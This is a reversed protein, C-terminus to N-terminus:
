KQSILQFYSFWVLTDGIDDFEVPMEIEEGKGKSYQKGYYKEM